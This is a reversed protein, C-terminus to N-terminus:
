AKLGPGLRKRLPGLEGRETETNSLDLHKLQPLAKPSKFALAGESSVPNGGLELRELNVLTKSKALEEAQEDGLENRNLALVKLTRLCEAGALPALSAEEELCASMLLRELQLKGQSFAKLAESNFSGSRALSLVRLGGLKESGVLAALGKATAGQLLLTRLSGAHEAKALAKAAADGKKTVKLWRIREFWPEGAAKELGKGDQVELYLRPVPERTLIEEGQEALTKESLVWDEVLGRSSYPMEEQLGPLAAAWAKGHEKMLSRVRKKLTMRQAPNVRTRLALEARILEARPGEGHKELWQAFAERPTAARPNAAIDDLLAPEPRM